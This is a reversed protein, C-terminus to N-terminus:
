DNDKGGKLKDCLRNLYFQAKQIDEDGNKLKERTLYKIVNGKIYGRFEEATLKDEIYDICEYKGTTYHDPHSVNDKKDAKSLKLEPIVPIRIPLKNEVFHPCSAGAYVSMTGDKHFVATAKNDNFKLNGIHPCFDPYTCVTKAGTECNPCLQKKTQKKM